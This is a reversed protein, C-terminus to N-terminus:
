VSEQRFVIRDKWRRQSPNAQYSLTIRSGPVIDDPLPLSSHWSLLQKWAPIWIKRKPQLDVVVAEISAKEKMQLQSLLCVDREQRKLEKQRQNLWLLNPETGNVVDGRLFEKLIRQNILDAYRRIPSSAHCQVEKELGFHRAKADNASCYVASKQALFALDAGLSHLRNLREQDPASHKRLVGKGLQRLVKAAEENQALMFTEIWEHTDMTENGRLCSVIDRLWEVSIGKRPAEELFNEYTFQFQNRVVSLKWEMRVLSIPESKSITLVLSVGPRKEGPLLSCSGESLSVPLMPKVATGDRQATFTQQFAINDLTTGTHVVDAVDAITIWLEDEHEGIRISLVDDIDKCGVPDINFTLPPCDVRGEWSTEAPTAQALFKQTPVFPNWTRLCANLEVDSDGCVGLIQRLNGRPLTGTWSEFEAVAQRSFRVDRESCGVVMPPQAPNCPVFLYMPVSRSTMGYKTKSALELVGILGISPARQIISCTQSESNWSVEDGPLARSACAAGEFEVCVEDAQSRIQFHVQDKTTLIGSM